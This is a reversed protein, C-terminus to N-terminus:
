CVIYYILDVSGLLNQPKDAKHSNLVGKYSISVMTFVISRKQTQEIM